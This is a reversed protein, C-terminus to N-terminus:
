WNLPDSKFGVININGDYTGASTGEPVLMGWWINKTTPTGSTPKPVNTYVPVDSTTLSTSSDYSTSASLAYKQYGIAITGGACTPFDTCMNAPGSVEHDLGINGTPTITTIRDLPNNSEGVGLSGYNIETTINFAMLSNMEVGQSVESNGTASNDDIAKITSLWTNDPYQTNADTPDAFYQLNTTCTYTASSDTDGTCTGTDVTCTIDSYCYNNNAEVSTDCGTYTIGSRYVYGLVSSIDVCSNNDTVTATLTVSKTSGATLDIASGSNLTVNSITPAVNSVTYTDLTGQLSSDSGLDYSDFIYPYVNYSADPTPTPITYSCSPNSSVYSSTCLTDSSGGDCASGTVGQTKCVVLKITDGTNSDSATTSFTINTGPNKPGDDGFSTFSPAVNDEWTCGCATCDSQNNHTTCASPTSSCNAAVWTCQSCTNCDAEICNSCNITNRCTSTAHTSLAFFSASYILSISVTLSIFSNKTIKGYLLLYLIAATIIIILLWFAYYIPCIKQQQYIEEETFSSMCSVDKYLGKEQANKVVNEKGSLFFHILESWACIKNKEREEQFNDLLYYGDIAFYFKDNEECNYTLLLSDDYQMEISRYDVIAKDNFLIETPIILEKQIEPDKTTDLAVYDIGFGGTLFKFRVKLNNSNNSSNNLSILFDDAGSSPMHYGASILGSNKWTNGNWVEVKMKLNEDWWNSIINKILSKQSLDSFLYFQEKGMMHAMYEYYTTLFPQKRAVVYLKPSDSEINDFEIEIWDEEKTEDFPPEWFTEDYKAIDPICDNEETTISSICRDPTRQENIIRPIGELDPKLFGEQGRIKYLTFDKLYTHEPLGEYIKIKAEGEICKLTPLSDYTTSSVGKFAAFPFAEHELKWESGDWGAVWPCSTGGWSCGACSCNNCNTSTSNSSCAGDNSCTATNWTCGCTACSGQVLSSCATPTGTCGAYSRQSNSLLILASLGIYFIIKFSSIKRM